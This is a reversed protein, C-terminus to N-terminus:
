SSRRRGRKAVRPRVEDEGDDDFDDDDDFDSKPENPSSKAGGASSGSKATEAGPKGKEAPPSASKVGDLGAVKRAESLVKLLDRQAEALYRRRLRGEETPDFKAEDRKLHLTRRDCGEILAAKKEFRTSVAKLRTELEGQAVGLRELLSASGRSEAGIPEVSSALRDRAAEFLGVLESMQKFDSGADRKELGLLRRGDEESWSKTRCRALISDVAGILHRCGMESDTLDDVGISPDECFAKWGADIKLRLGLYHTEAVKEVRVVIAADEADAVNELRRKARFALDALTKTVEDDGPFCDLWRERSAEVASSDEIGPILLAKFGHKYSNRRSQDKGEATRPGTSLQANARNAAMQFFSPAM